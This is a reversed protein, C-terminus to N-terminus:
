KFGKTLTEIHKRFSQEAFKRDNGDLLNINKTFIQQLIELHLAVPSNSLGKGHRRYVVGHVGSYIFRCRNAMRIKLDWDEYIALSTDYGGVANYLSKSFVFDRPIMCTRGLIDRLLNGQVINKESGLVIKKGDNKELIINSFAIVDEQHNKKYHLVLNIEKELKRSDAYYDDADLTTLYDASAAEIAIHRSQAVGRNNNNHICKVLHKHKGTFTRIVSVSDDTSADDVVIIEINRWTQELISELCEKLYKANNYNPM